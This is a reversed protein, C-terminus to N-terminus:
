PRRTRLEATRLAMANRELQAASSLLTRRLLEKWAAKAWEIDRQTASKKMGDM